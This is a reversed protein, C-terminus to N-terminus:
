GGANRGNSRGNKAGLLRMVPIRAFAWFTRMGAM